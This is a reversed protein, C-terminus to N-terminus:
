NIDITISQSEDHENYPVVTIEIPTETDVLGYELTAKVEGNEANPFYMDSTNKNKADYAGSVEDLNNDGQTVDLGALAFFYKKGDGAQNLWRFTLIAKDDEIELEEFNITFEGFTLENDLNIINTTEEPEEKPQAAVEEAEQEDPANAMEEKGQNVGTIAGYIILVGFVGILWVWWKKLVSKKM